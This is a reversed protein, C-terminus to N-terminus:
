ASSGTAIPATAVPRSPVAMAKTRSGSMPMATPRISVPGGRRARRAAQAVPRSTATAAAKTGNIQGIATIPAIPRTAAQGQSPRAVATLAAIAATTGAATRTGHVKWRNM